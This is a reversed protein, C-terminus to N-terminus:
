CCTTKTNMACMAVHLNRSIQRYDICCLLGVANSVIRKEVIKKFTEKKNYKKEIKEVWHELLEMKLFQNAVTQM